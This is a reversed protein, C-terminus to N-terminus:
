ARAANDSEIAEMESIIPEKPYGHDYARILIERIIEPKWSKKHTKIEQLLNHIFGKFVDEGWQSVADLLLNFYDKKMRDLSYWTTDHKSPMPYYFQIIPLVRQWIDQPDPNTIGNAHLKAILVLKREFDVRLQDDVHPADKVVELINPEDGTLTLLM